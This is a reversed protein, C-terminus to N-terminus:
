VNYKLMIEEVIKKQVALGQWEDVADPEDYIITHPGNFNANKLVNLCKKYDEIDLKGQEFNAKSHCSEAYRVIQEFDAYKSAGSWNGFDLCLGLQGDLAEIIHNVAEPTSATEFWNEIM